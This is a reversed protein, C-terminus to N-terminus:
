SRTKIYKLLDERIEVSEQTKERAAHENAIIALIKDQEVQEFSQLNPELKELMMNYWSGIDHKESN